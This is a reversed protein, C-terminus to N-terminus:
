THTHKRYHGVAVGALWGIAIANYPLIFSFVVFAIGALLILAAVSALEVIIPLHSSTHGVWIGFVFAALVIVSQIVIGADHISRHDLFQALIQAHIFLGPSREHSRVSLPTLHQDRDPFHGGVLVIRGQLMQSVPLPPGEAKGLVQEASITLFQENGDSPNLLWSIYHSKPHFDTGSIEALTAAFSKPSPLDGKDDSMHRVVHDSIVFPSHHEDFHLHGVPRNATRLYDKQYKAGSLDTVQAAGLVLKSQIGQISHITAEFRRDLDPETPRDIVFDLGIARPNAADIAKLLDSLLGRNTPSVYPYRELSKETVYVLAIRSDQSAPRQSGWATVLDASWHQPGHPMHLLFTLTLFAVLIGFGFAWMQWHKLTQSVRWFTEPRERIHQLWRQIMM